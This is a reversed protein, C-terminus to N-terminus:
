TSLLTHIDCLSRYGAEHLSWVGKQLVHRLFCSSMKKTLPDSLMNRGEVWRVQGRTMALDRRLVSLDIATRKDDVHASSNWCKTVTDYLSKSDTVAVFPVESVEQEWGALSLPNKFLEYLLGRHWHIQGIGYLMSQTEASLTNVTCRKLKYSKWAAVTIPRPEPRHEMEADYFFVLYGGQSGTRGFQLFRECIPKQLEEEFAVITLGPRNEEFYSRVDRRTQSRLMDHGLLLDFAMGARLGVTSTQPGFRSPNFVEAVRFKDHGVIGSALKRFKKSRVLDTATTADFKRLLHEKRAEPTKSEPLNLLSLVETWTEEAATLAAKAQRM